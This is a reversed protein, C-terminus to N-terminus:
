GDPTEKRRDTGDLLIPLAYPASLRSELRPALESIPKDMTLITPRMHDDRQTLVFELEDAVFATAKGDNREVARFDDILLLGCAILEDVISAPQNDRVEQRLRHAIEKASIWQASWIRHDNATNVWLRTAMWTKGSGNPGYFTIAWQKTHDWNAVAEPIDAMTAADLHRAPIRHLVAELKERHRPDPMNKLRCSQCVGDIVVNPSWKEHCESCELWEPEPGLLKLYDPADDTM